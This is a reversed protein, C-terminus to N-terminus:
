LGLGPQVTSYVFEVAWHGPWREGNSKVAPRVRTLKVLVIEPEDAAWAKAAVEADWATEAPVVIDLLLHPTM